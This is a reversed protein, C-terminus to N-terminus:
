RIGEIEPKVAVVGADFVKGAETRHVRADGNDERVIDNPGYYDGAVIVYEIPEIDTFVFFGNADTIAGPSRALDFAYAANKHADDWYVQALHVITNKMPKRTGISVLQGVLVAKGSAPAAVTPRSAPQSNIQAPEGACGALTLLLLCSVCLFSAIRKM